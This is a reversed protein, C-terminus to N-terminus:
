LVGELAGFLLATTPTGLFSGLFPLRKWPNWPFFMPQVGLVESALRGRSWESAKRQGLRPRTTTTWSWACAGRWRTWWPGMTTQLVSWRRTAGQSSLVLCPSSPCLKLDIGPFLAGWHICLKLVRAFTFACIRARICAHIYVRTHTNKVRPVGIGVAKVVLNRAGPQIPWRFRCGFVRSRARLVMASKSLFHSCNQM